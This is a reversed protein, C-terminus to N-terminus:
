PRHYMFIVLKQISITICELVRREPNPCRVIICECGYESLYVRLGDMSMEYEISVACGQGSILRRWQSM